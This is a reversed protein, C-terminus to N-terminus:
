RGQEDHSNIESSVIGPNKSEGSSAFILHLDHVGTKM